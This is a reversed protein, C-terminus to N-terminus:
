AGDDLESVPKRHKDGEQVEKVVAEEVLANVTVILAAVVRDKIQARRAQVLGHVGVVARHLEVREEILGHM